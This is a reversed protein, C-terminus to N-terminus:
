CNNESELLKSPLTTYKEPVCDCHVHLTVTIMKSCIHATQLLVLLCVSLCVSVPKIIHCGLPQILVISYICRDFFYNGAFIDVLM